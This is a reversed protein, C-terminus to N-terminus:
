GFLRDVRFGIDFGVLVLGVNIATNIIWPWRDQRLVRSLKRSIVTLVGFFTFAVIVSFSWHGAFPVVIVTHIVGCIVFSLLTPVVWMRAGGLKMYIRYVFYAIGPNWVQWFRHFGPEAWCEVFGRRHYAFDNFTKFGRRRAFRRYNAEFRARWALYAHRLEDLQLIKLKM